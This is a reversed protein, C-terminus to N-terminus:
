KRLERLVKTWHVKADKADTLHQEAQALKEEAQAIQEDVNVEVPPATNDSTTMADHAASNAEGANPM